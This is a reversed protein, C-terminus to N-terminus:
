FLNTRGSRGEHGRSGRVSLWFGQRALFRWVGARHPERGKGFRVAHDSVTHSQLPPSGGIDIPSRSEEMSGPRVSPCDRRPGPPASLPQSETSRLSCIWRKQKVRPELVGKANESHFLIRHESACADYHDGDAKWEVVGGAPGDRGGPRSRTPVSRGKAQAPPEGGSRLGRRMAIERLRTQPLRERPESPAEPSRRKGRTNTNRVPNMEAPAPVTGPPPM